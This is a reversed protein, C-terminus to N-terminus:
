WRRGIEAILWLFVFHQPAAGGLKRGADVPIFVGYEPRLSLADVPRFLINVDVEHGLNRATNTPDWGAGVPTGDNLMWKGTPEQLQFFHYDLSIQTSKHPRLWTRVSLTRNNRNGVLDMHGRDRHGVGLIRQFDRSNAAGCGAPDGSPNTCREGSHLEYSVALGPHVVPAQTEYQLSAVGAWGLHQRGDVSGDQLLGEVSYALGATPEGLLRLDYTRFRRDRTPTQPQPDERWGWVSGDIALAQHVRLNIYAAGLLLGDSAVERTGDPVTPDDVTFTGPPALLSGFTGVTVPGVTGEMRVADLSINGPQWYRYALLRQSGLGFWQRGLRIFGSTGGREGSLDLYGQFLGTRNGPGATSTAEGGWQHVHQLSARVSLPGLFGHAFMRAGQRIRWMDDDATASFDENVRAEPRLFVRAGMELEPGGVAPESEAPAPALALLSALLQTVWAM